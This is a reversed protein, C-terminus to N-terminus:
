GIIEKIQDSSPLYSATQADLRVLRTVGAFRLKVRGDQYVVHEFEAEIEKPDHLNRLTVTFTEKEKKDVSERTATFPKDWSDVKVEMSYRVTANVGYTGTIIWSYILQENAKYGVLRTSSLEQRWIAPNSEQAHASFPLVMIFPLILKRTM